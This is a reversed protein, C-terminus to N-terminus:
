FLHFSALAYRPINLYLLSFAPLFYKRFPHVHGQTKDGVTPLWRSVQSGGPLVRLLGRHARGLDVERSTPCVPGKQPLAKRGLPRPDEKCAGLSSALAPRGRATGGPSHLAAAPLTGVSVAESCGLIDQQRWAGM